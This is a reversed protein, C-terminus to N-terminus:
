PRAGLECAVAKLAAEPVDIGAVAAGIGEPLVWRLAGGRRKKDAEMATRLEAFAISPLRTPLGARALLDELPAAIGRASGVREAIRAAAVMGIAVAEGHRYRSYDTISELAHGVTHGFNLIEREGEDREDASVIRAKIRCAEAVLQALPGPERALLPDLNDRLWEYYGRDLTFGLKIAEALGAALDRRTLTALTGVDAMVLAPQHFAGLLNKGEPLNIATKGGVAADVMALLTTPLHVVPVGRMYIAGLFGGLDAVMGGGCTIIGCDRGLRRRAAVGALRGVEALSKSKEGAAVTAPVFTIGANSLVRKIRQGYIGEVTSDSVLIYQRHGLAAVIWDGAEDLVDPGVLVRYSRDGLDVTVEHCAGDAAM